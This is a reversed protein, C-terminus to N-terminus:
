HVYIIICFLTLTQENIALSKLYEATNLLYKATVPKYEATNCHKPLYLAISQITTAIIPTM